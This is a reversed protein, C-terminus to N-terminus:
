PIYITVSSLAIESYDFVRQGVDGELGMWNITDGTNPIHKTLTNFEERDRGEKKM